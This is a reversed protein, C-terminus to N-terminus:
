RYRYSTGPTLPNNPATLTFSVAVPVTGAGIGIDTVPAKTAGAFPEHGADLNAEYAAQTLYEFHYRTSVGEPDIEARPVASSSTVSTVWEAGIKPPEPEAAGAGPSVVLGLAVLLALISRGLRDVGEAAATTSTQSRSATTSKATTSTTSRAAGPKAASRRSQSRTRRGPSAHRPRSPPRHAPARSAPKAKAPPCRYRTRPPSAAAPAPTTSTSSNTPTRASSSPTPSSTPTTARSPPM